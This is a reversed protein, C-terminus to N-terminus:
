GNNGSTSSRDETPQLSAPKTAQSVLATVAMNPCNTDSAGGGSVGGESTSERHLELPPQCLGESTWLRPSFCRNSRSPSRTELQLLSTTSSITTNCISRNRPLPLAKPDPPLDRSQADLRLSEEDSEVRQRSNCERKRTSTSDSTQGETPVVDMARKSTQHGSRLSYRGPQKYLSSSDPQRPAATCEQERSGKFLNQNSTNSGAARPLKHATKAGAPVLSSRDTDRPMISGVRQPICRIRDPPRTAKLGSEEWELENAPYQVMGIGRHCSIVPQLSHHLVPQEIKRPTICLGFEGPPIDSGRHPGTSKGSNRGPSSHQRHIGCAQSRARQASNASAEPDQYLGLSCLVPQVAPLQVPLRPKWHLLAPITQRVPSNPDHLLCGESGSEDDLGRGKSHEESYSSGRDQFPLTPRLCQSRESQDSTEQGWRKQLSSLSQLLVGPPVEESPDRLDGRQDVDESSGRETINSGLNLVLRSQATGTTNPKGFIRNQVGKNYEPDM